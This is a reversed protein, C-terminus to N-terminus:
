NWLSNSTLIKLVWFRQTREDGQPESPLSDAQLASVQTQDWSQSSRRSSPIVVWELIRAQLIGHVFSDPLSCDMPECLTLCSQIVKVENWRGHLPDPWESERLHHRPSHEWHRNRHSEKSNRNNRTFSRSNVCNNMLCPKISNRPNTSFKTVIENWGWEAEKLDEGIEQTPTQSM